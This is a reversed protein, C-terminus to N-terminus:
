LEPCFLSPLHFFLILCLTESNVLVCSSPTFISILELMVLTSLITISPPFVSNPLSNWLKTTCLIFSHLYQSVRANSLHVPYSVLARLFDPGIQLKSSKHTFIGKMFSFNLLVLWMILWAKIPTHVVSHLTTVYSWQISKNPM